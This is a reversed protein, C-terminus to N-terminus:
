SPDEQASEPNLFRALEDRCPPCVLYEFKQYIQKELDEESLEEMQAEIEEVLDGLPERSVTIYGDFHSTLEAKLRYVPGGKKFRKGCRACRSKGTKDGM